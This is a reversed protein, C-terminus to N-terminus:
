LNILTKYYVQLDTPLTAYIRTILLEHIKSGLARTRQTLIEVCTEVEEQGTLFVISYFYFLSKSSSFFFLFSFFLFSFFLFSFFSFFVWFIEELLNLLMFKFFLLLLLM